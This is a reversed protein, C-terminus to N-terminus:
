KTAFLRMTMDNLDPKLSRRVTSRSVLRRPKIGFTALESNSVSYYKCEVYFGLDVHSPNNNKNEVQIGDKTIKCIYRQGNVPHKVWVLDDKRMRDLANYARKFSSSQNITYGVGGIALIGRQLCVDFKQGSSALSGNTRNDKINMVWINM